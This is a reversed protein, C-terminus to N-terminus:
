LELALAAKTIGKRHAEAEMIDDLEVPIRVMFSRKAGHLPLYESQPMRGGGGGARMNYGRPSLTKMESICASELAGLQSATHPVAFYDWVFADRGYKRIANQFHWVGGGCRLHERRRTRFSDFTMGVYQKGNRVNTAIYIGSKWVDHTRYAELMRLLEVGKM